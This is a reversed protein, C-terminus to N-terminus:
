TIIIVTTFSKEKKGGLIQWRHDDLYSLKLPINPLNPAYPLNVVIEM